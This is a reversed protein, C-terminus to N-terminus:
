MRLSLYLARHLWSCFSGKKAWLPLKCQQLIEFLFSWNWQVTFVTLKYTFIGKLSKLEKETKKIFKPRRRRWKNGTINTLRCHDHEDTDRKKKEWNRLSSTAINTKRLLSVTKKKRCIIIENKNDSTFQQNWNPWDDQRM